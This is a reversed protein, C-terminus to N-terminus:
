LDCAIGTCTLTGVLPNVGPKLEIAYIHGKFSNNFM